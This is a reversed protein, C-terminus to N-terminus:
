FKLKKTYLFGGLVAAPLSLVISVIAAITGPPQAHATFPLAAVVALGGVFASNILSGQKAVRAATYGGLCTFGLGFVLSFLIGPFTASWQMLCEASKEASVGHMTETGVAILGFLLGVLATGGWDITCGILIAKININEM